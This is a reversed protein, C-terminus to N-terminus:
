ETVLVGVQAGVLWPLPGSPCRVADFECNCCGYGCVISYHGPLEDPDTELHHPRQCVSCDLVRLPRRTFPVRQPECPIKDNPAACVIQPFDFIRCFAHAHNMTSVCEGDNPITSALADSINTV